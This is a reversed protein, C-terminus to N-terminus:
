VDGYFTVTFEQNAANAPSAIYYNAGMELDQTIVVQGDAIQGVIQDIDFRRDHMISADIITANNNESVQGTVTTSPSPLTTFQFNQSSRNEQGKLPQPQSVVLAIQEVGM